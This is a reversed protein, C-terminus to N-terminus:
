YRSDAVANAMNEAAQEATMDDNNYFETVTDYFAGQTASFTSMGHAM